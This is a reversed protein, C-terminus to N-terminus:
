SHLITSAAASLASLFLPKTRVGIAKNNHQQDVRKQWVWRQLNKYKNSTLQLNM